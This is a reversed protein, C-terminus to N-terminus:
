QHLIYDIDSKMRGVLNRLKRTMRFNCQKPDDMYKRAKLLM